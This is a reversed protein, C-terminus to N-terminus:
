RGSSLIARIVTDKGREAFRLVRDWCFYRFQGADGIFHNEPLPNVGLGDRRKGGVGSNDDSVVGAKIAPEGLAVPRQEFLLGPGTRSRLHFPPLM